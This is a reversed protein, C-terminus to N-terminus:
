SFKHLSWATVQKFKLDDLCNENDVNFLAPEIINDCCNCCSFSGFVEATLEFL